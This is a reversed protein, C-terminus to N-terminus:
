DDGDRESRKRLYNATAVVMQGFEVLAQRLLEDQEATIPQDYVRLPQTRDVERHWEVYGNQHITAVPRVVREVAQRAADQASELMSRVRNEENM